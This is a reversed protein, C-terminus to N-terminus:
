DSDDLRREEADRRDRAQQEKIERLCIRVIERVSAPNVLDIKSDVTGVRIDM